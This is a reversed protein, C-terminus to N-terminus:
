WPRECVQSDITPTKATEFTISILSSRIRPLYTGQSSHSSRPFANDCHTSNHEDCRAWPNVKKAAFQSDRRRRPWAFLTVSADIYKAAPNCSLRQRLLKEPFESLHSSVLHQVCYFFSGFPAFGTVLASHERNVAVFSRRIARTKRDAACRTNWWQALQSTFENRRYLPATAGATVPM